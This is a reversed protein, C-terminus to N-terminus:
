TNKFYSYNYRVVFIKYDIWGQTFTLIITFNTPRWRHVGQTRGQYLCGLHGATYTFEIDAIFLGLLFGQMQFSASLTCEQRM